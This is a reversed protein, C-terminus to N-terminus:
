KVEVDTLGYAALVKGSTVTKRLERVAAEMVNETGSITWSDLREGNKLLTIRVGNPTTEATTTIVPKPAAKTTQQTM